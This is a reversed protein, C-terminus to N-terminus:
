GSRILLLIASSSVRLYRPCQSFRASKTYRRHTITDSMTLLRYDQTHNAKAAACFWLGVAYQRRVQGSMDLVTVPTNDFQFRRASFGVTPVIVDRRDIIDNGASKDALWDILTTKGSNDLGVVLVGLPHKSIGSGM